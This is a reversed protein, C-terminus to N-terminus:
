EKIREFGQKAAALFRRGGSGRGSWCCVLWLSLLGGGVIGGNRTRRVTLNEFATAHFRRFPRLTKGSGFQDAHQLLVVLAFENRQEFHLGDHRRLDTRIAVKNGFVVAHGAAATSDLGDAHFDGLLVAHLAGITIKVQVVRITAAAVIRLLAREIQVGDAFVFGDVGAAVLRKAADCEDFFGGRQALPPKKIQVSRFLSM